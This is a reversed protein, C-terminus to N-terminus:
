IPSLGYTTTRASIKGKELNMALLCNEKDPHLQRLIAVFTNIRDPSPVVTNWVGELLIGAREFNSLYGISMAKSQVYTTILGEGWLAATMEPVMEKITSVLAFHNNRLVSGARNIDDM